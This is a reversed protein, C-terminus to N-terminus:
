SFNQSKKLQHMSVGSLSYIFSHKTFFQTVHSVSQLFALPAKTLLLIASLCIYYFPTFADKTQQPSFPIAPVINASHGCTPFVLSFYAEPHQGSEHMMCEDTLQGGLPLLDHASRWLLTREGRLLGTVDRWPWWDGKGLCHLFTNQTLWGPYRRTNQRCKAM